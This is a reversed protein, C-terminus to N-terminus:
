GVQPDEFGDALLRFTNVNVEAVEIRFPPVADRNQVGTEAPDNPLVPVLRSSTTNGMQCTGSELRRSASPQTAAQPNKRIYFYDGATARKFVVGGTFLDNVPLYPQGSCDATLYYLGSGQVPDANDWPHVGFSDMAGTARDYRVQYGRTSTATVVDRVQETPGLYFGLVNSEADVVVPNSATASLSLLLTPALAIYRM